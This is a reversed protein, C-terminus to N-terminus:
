YESNAELEDLEEETIVHPFDDANGGNMFHTNYLDQLDIVEPVEPVENVEDDSQREELAIQKVVTPVIMQVIVDVQTEPVFGEEEWSLTLHEILDECGIKNQDALEEYIPYCYSIPGSVKVVQEKKAAQLLARPDIVRPAVKGSKISEGLVWPYQPTHTETKTGAYHLYGGDDVLMQIDSLSKLPHKGPFTIGASSGTALGAILVLTTIVKTKM